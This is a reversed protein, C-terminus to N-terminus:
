SHHYLLCLTIIKHHYLYNKKGFLRFVFHQFNNFQVGSSMFAGCVIRTNNYRLDGLITLTSSYTGDSNEEQRPVIIGSSNYPEISLVPIIQFSGNEAPEVLWGLTGMTRCM